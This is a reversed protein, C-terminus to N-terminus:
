PTALPIAEEHSLKAASFCSPAIWQVELGRTQPHNSDPFTRLWAGLDDIALGAQWQCCFGIRLPEEGSPSFALVIALNAGLKILIPLSTDKPDPVDFFDLAPQVGPRGFRLLYGGWKLQCRCPITTSNLPREQLQFQGSIEQASLPFIASGHAKMLAPGLCRLRLDAAAKQVDRWGCLAAYVGGESKHAIPRAMLVHTGFLDLEASDLWLHQKKNPRTSWWEELRSSIPLRLIFGEWTAAPQVERLDLRDLAILKETNELVAGRTYILDSPRLVEGATPISYPQTM